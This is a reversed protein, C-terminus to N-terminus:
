VELGASRAASGHIMRRSERSSRVTLLIKVKESRYNRLDQRKYPFVSMALDVRSNIRMLFIYVNEIHDFVVM